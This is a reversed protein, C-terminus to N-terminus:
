FGPKKETMYTFYFLEDEPDRYGYISLKRLLENEKEKDYDAWITVVSEQNGCRYWGFLIFPQEPTLKLKQRLVKVLDGVTWNRDALFLPFDKDDEDFQFRNEPQGEIILPVKGKRWHEDSLRKREELTHQGKWDTTTHSSVPRKPTMQEVLDRIRKRIEERKSRIRQIIENRLVEPLPRDWARQESGKMDELQTRLTKLEDVLPNDPKIAQAMEERGGFYGTKEDARDESGDRPEHELEPTDQTAKQMGSAGTLFSIGLLAFAVYYKSSM